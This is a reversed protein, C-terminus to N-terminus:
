VARKLRVLSGHFVQGGCRQRHLGLQLPILADEIGNSENPSVPFIIRESMALRPSFNVEYNSVALWRVVELARRLDRRVPRSERRVRRMSEDLETLTFNEALPEIVAIAHSNEFGMEHLKTLFRKKRYTPNPLVEPVTVFRSVPEVSISGDPRIRPWKSPVSGSSTVLSRSAM